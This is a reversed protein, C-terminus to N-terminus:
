SRILELFLAKVAAELVDKFRAVSADFGGGIYDAIYLPPGVNVLIKGPIVFPRQTGYLAIPTVPVRLGYRDQMNFAVISTGRGFPYVYPNPHQPMVRGRGHLSILARGARLYDMFREVAARKGEHGYLDVPITGVRAVTSSAYRVFLFKLPKLVSDLLVGFEKLHRKLHKRVLYDLGDRSFIQQNATFFVPRPVIRYVVAPDKFSGCHNGVIINPGERFFHEAGRVVIKKGPLVLRTIFRAAPEIRKLEDEFTAM